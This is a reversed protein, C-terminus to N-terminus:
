ASKQEAPEVMVRMGQVKIVRVDQGLKVPTESEFDWIEGRILAKGSKADNSILEVKGLYGALGLEAMGGISKRAERTLKSTRAAFWAVALVGTGLGLVAPVLVSLSVQMTSWAPDMVWILGLALSIVGGLALAGHSVVFPEALMLAIGLAFIVQLPV